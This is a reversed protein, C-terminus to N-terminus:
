ANKRAITTLVAALIWLVPGWIGVLFSIYGPILVAVIFGLDALSVVVLNAWYAARNNRWNWLAAVVAAFVGFWLLNWAHQSMIATAVSGMEPPTKIPGSDSYLTSIVAATSDGLNIMLIQIGIMAHMIGWLFYSIAGWQYVRM